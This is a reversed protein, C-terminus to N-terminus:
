RNSLVMSFRYIKGKNEKDPNIFCKWVDKGFTGTILEACEHLAAEQEKNLKVNSQNEIQM